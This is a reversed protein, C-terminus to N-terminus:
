KSTEPIIATAMFKDLGTSKVWKEVVSKKQYVLVLNKSAKQLIYNSHIVENIGSLDCEVVKQVDLYIRTTKKTLTKVVQERLLAADAACLNHISIIQINEQKDKINRSKISTQTM